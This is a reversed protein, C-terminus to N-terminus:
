YTSLPKSHVRFEVVWVWPNSAWPARKANISDWLSRFGHVPNATDCDITQSNAAPPIGEAIADAPTIENLRQVRVDVVELTLRCLFRPMHISVCTDAEDKHHAWMIAQSCRPDDQMFQIPTNDAAYYWEGNDNAKLTERVWLRDGPVGYPCRIRYHPFTTIYQEVVRESHAVAVARDDQDMQWHHVAPHNLDETPARVARRTQTKRGDMVARVMPGSFLIPRERTTGTVDMQM